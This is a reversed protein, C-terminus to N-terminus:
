AKGAPTPAAKAECESLVRAIKALLKEATFPKAVYDRVGRQFALMRQTFALNGTIFVVPCGSTAPDGQLAEMLAYGDMFPMSIDALVLVPHERRVLDVATRPDTTVTPAYGGEELISAVTACM